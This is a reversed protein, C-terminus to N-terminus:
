ESPPPLVLDNQPGFIVRREGEEVRGVILAEFGAERAIKCAREAEFPPVIVYYGVGWNFAELCDKIPVGIVEHMYRMITPVEPWDHIRYTLSRKNAALKAVGGGTGPQYAHVRVNHENMAAVLDVYCLTEALAAEGLLTNDPLTTFFTNPLELAKRIVLSFGNAHLGSSGVAIVIDGIAIKSSDVKYYDPDIIGTVCGSLSPASSVPPQARILYKLSPSEGGVLAMNALQCARHVGNAFDTARKDDAFWESDGAAVEDNYTVPMAGTAILDNVAMMATCVAVKEYNTKDTDGSQYMYEAIWNKNGLGELVPKAHRYPQTGLYRWSGDAFVECDWRRPLERTLEVVRVMKEKFPGILSYDVGSKAYESAM